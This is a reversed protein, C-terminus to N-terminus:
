PASSSLALLFSLLDVVICSFVIGSNFLWAGLLLPLLLFFM